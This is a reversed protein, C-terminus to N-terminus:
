PNKEYHGATVALSGSFGQNRAAVGCKCRVRRTRAALPPELHPVDGLLPATVPDPKAIREAANMRLREDALAVGIPIEALHVGVLETPL